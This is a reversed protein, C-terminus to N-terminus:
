QMVEDKHTASRQIQTAHALNEQMVKLSEDESAGAEV